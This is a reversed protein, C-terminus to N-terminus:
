NELASEYTKTIIVKQEEDIWEVTYGLYEALARLPLYFIGDREMPAVTWATEKYATCDLPNSRVVPDNAKVRFYFDEADPDSKQYVHTGDEEPEHAFQFDFWSEAQGGPLYIRDNELIPGYVVDNIDWVPSENVYISIGLSPAPTTGEIAGDNGDTPAWLGTIVYPNDTTGGGSLIQANEENLYFAPRIGSFHYANTASEDFSPAGEPKDPMCRVYDGTLYNESRHYPIPTTDPTRLFYGCSLDATHTEDTNEEYGDRLIRSRGMRWLSPKIIKEPTTEVWTREQEAAQPTMKAWLYTDGLIHRNEWIHYLQMDDPLFMMDDVYEYSIKDYYELAFAIRDPAKGWYQVEGGVACEADMKGLLSKQHVKKIAARDLPSFHADSLFGDDHYYSTPFQTGCLWRIGREPAKSNLWSRVNSDAWDYSKEEQVGRVRRRRHSGYYPNIAADDFIKECLVKDSLVLKGNEDNAAYRWIIPANDYNGFQIYDGVKLDSVTKFASDPEEALAAGPLLAFILATNLM